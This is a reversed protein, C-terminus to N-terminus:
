QVSPRQYRVEEPSGPASGSQRGPKGRFLRCKAVESRAVVMLRVESTAEGVWRSGLSKAVESRAVVM